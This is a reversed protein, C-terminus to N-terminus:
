IHPKTTTGFVFFVHIGQNRSCYAMLNAPRQLPVMERNDRKRQAERFSQIIRSIAITSYCLYHLMTSRSTNDKSNSKIPITTQSVALFTAPLSKNQRSVLNSHKNRHTSLTRGQQNVMKVTMEAAVQDGFWCSKHNLGSLHFTIMKM